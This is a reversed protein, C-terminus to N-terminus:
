CKMAQSIYSNQLDLFQNGGPLMPLTLRSRNQSLLTNHRLPLLPLERVLESPTTSKKMTQAKPKLHPV